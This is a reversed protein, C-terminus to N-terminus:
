DEVNKQAKKLYKAVKSIKTADNPRLIIEEFDGYKSRHGFIYKIGNVLRKLFGHPALHIYVYIEKDDDLWVFQIQHEESGCQCLLTEINIKEKM